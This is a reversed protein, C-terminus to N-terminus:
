FQAIICKDKSNNKIMTGYVVIPCNFLKNLEILEASVAGAFGEELDVNFDYFIDQNFVIISPKGIKHLQNLYFAKYSGGVVFVFEM